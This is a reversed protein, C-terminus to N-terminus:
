AAGHNSVGHRQGTIRLNRVTATTEPFVVVAGSFTEPNVPPAPITRQTGSM